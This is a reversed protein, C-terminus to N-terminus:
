RKSTILTSHLCKLSRLLSFTEHATNSIFKLHTYIVTPARVQKFIQGIRRGGEPNQKADSELAKLFETNFKFLTEINSFLATQTGADTELSTSRASSSCCLSSRFGSSHLRRTLPTSSLKQHISKAADHSLCDEAM